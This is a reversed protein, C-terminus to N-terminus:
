KQVSRYSLLLFYCLLGFFLTIILAHLLAIFLNVKTFIVLAGLIVQLTIFFTQIMWGQKMVKINPYDKKIAFFLIWTWIFAIGALVRHGMQVWQGLHYDFSLPADNTCFPWSPCALSSDIHRVLAGSYVVVMLYVTLLIFQKRFFPTIVLAEADFKQDVEFILITLLLVAAFSILSIGFHLALVFDSQSWLVAAAGILGQFVLFFISIFSLFKTERIHGIKFWSLVSLLLVFIGALGSVVRHSLEIFMEMSWEGYCFPWNAGCGMGSETKTVLAGGVLVFIMLLTSIISLIKLGKVM